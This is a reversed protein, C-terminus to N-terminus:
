GQETKKALLASGQTADDETKEYNNAITQAQQAFTSFKEVLGNLGALLDKHSDYGQGFQQAFEDDTGWCQGIGNLAHVLTNYATSAQGHANGFFKAGRRLQETNVILQDDSM